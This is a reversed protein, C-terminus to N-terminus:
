IYVYHAMNIFISVYLKEPTSRYRLIVCAHSDCNYLVDIVICVISVEGIVRRDLISTGAANQESGAPMHGSYGIM